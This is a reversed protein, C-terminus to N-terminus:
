ACLHDLRLVSRDRTVQIACLLLELTQKRGARCSVPSYWELKKSVFPRCGTLVLVAARLVCCVAPLLRRRLPLQLPSERATRFSWHSRRTRWASLCSRARNWRRCRSSRCHTRTRAPQDYGPPACWCRRIGIRRGPTHLHPASRIPQGSVRAETHRQAQM